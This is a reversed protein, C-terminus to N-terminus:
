SMRVPSVPNTDGGECSSLFVGMINKLTCSSSCVDPFWTTGFTVHL